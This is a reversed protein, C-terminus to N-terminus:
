IFLICVRKQEILLLCTNHREWSRHLSNTERSKQLLQAELSVQPLKQFTGSSPAPPTHKHKLHVACSLHLIKTSSLKLQINTIAPYNWRLTSLAAKVASWLWIAYIVLQTGILLMNDSPSSVRDLLLEFSGKIVSTWISDKFNFKPVTLVPMANYISYSRFIVATCHNSSVSSTFYTELNEAQLIHASREAKNGLFHSCWTAWFPSLSWFSLLSSLLCM